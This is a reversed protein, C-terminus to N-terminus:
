YPNGLLCFPVSVSCLLEVGCLALLTFSLYPLKEKKYIKEKVSAILM